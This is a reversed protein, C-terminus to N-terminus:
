PIDQSLSIGSYRCEDLKYSDRDRGGTCNDGNSVRCGPLHEPEGPPERIFHETPRTAASRVNFCLDGSLSADCWLPTM